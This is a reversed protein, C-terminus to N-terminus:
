KKIGKLRNIVFKKDDSDIIASGSILFNAGAEIVKDCTDLNIGGDVSLIINRNGILKKAKKIKIAEEREALKNQWRLNINVLTDTNSDEDEDCVITLYSTNTSVNIENPVVPKGGSVANKSKSASRTTRGHM